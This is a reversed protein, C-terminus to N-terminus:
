RGSVLAAPAIDCEDEEIARGPMANGLLSLVETLEGPSLNQHAVWWSAAAICRAPTVVGRVFGGVNSGYAARLRVLATDRLRLAFRCAIPDGVLKPLGAVAARRELVVSHADRREQAFRTARTRKTSEIWCDRCPKGALWALRQGWDERPLITLDHPREHECRHLVWIPKDNM